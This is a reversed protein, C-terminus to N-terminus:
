VDQFADFVNRTDYNSDNNDNVVVTILIIRQVVSPSGKQIMKLTRSLNKQKM